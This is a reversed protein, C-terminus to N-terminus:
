NGSDLPRQLAIVAKSPDGATVKAVHRCSDIVRSVFEWRVSSYVQFKINIGDKGKSESATEGFHLKFAPELSKAIEPAVTKSFYDRAGQREEPIDIANGSVGTGKFEIKRLDGTQNAVLTITLDAEFKPPADEPPKDQPKAASAKKNEEAPLSFPIETEEGVPPKFTMIFFFLLQFTMDLMPTIPIAPEAMPPFKNGHGKKHGGHTEQSHPITGLSPVQQSVRSANQAAPQIVPPASQAAVPQSSIVPPPASAQTPLSPPTVSAVAPAAPTVTPAPAAPPTQVSQSAGASSGVPSIALVELGRQEASQRVAGETEGMLSGEFVQGTKPNRLTVKFQQQAMGCRVKGPFLRPGIEGRADPDHRWLHSGQVSKGPL